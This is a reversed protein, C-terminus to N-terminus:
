DTQPRRRSGHRKLFFNLKALFFVGLNDTLETDITILLQLCVDVLYALSHGCLAAAFLNIILERNEVVIHDIGKGKWTTEYVDRPPHQHM